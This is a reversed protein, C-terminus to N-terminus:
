QMLDIKLFESKMSELISPLIYNISPGFVHFYLNNPIWAFEHLNPKRNEASRSQDGKLTLLTLPLLPKLASSTMM